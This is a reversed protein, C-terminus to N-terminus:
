PFFFTWPSFQSIGLLFIDNLIMSFVPKLASKVNIKLTEFIQVRNKHFSTLQKYSKKREGAPKHTKSLTREKATLVRAKDGDRIDKTPIALGRRM